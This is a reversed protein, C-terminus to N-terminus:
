RSSNSISMRSVRDPPTTGCADDLQHAQAAQGAMVETVFLKM